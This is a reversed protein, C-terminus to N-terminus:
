SPNFTTGIKSKALIDQTLPIAKRLECKFGYFQEVATKVTSIYQPKVEGLPQIYIIRTENSNKTNIKNSESNYNCAALLLLFLPLLHKM